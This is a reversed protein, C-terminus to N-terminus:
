VRKTLLKWSWMERCLTKSVVNILLQSYNMSLCDEARSTGVGLTGYLDNCPICNNQDPDTQYFDKDCKQCPELGTQEISYSGPLCVASLLFFLNM